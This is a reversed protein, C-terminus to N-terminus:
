RRRRAHARARRADASVDRDELSVVASGGRADGSTHVWVPDDAAFGPGSCRANGLVTRCTLDADVILEEYDFLPLLPWGSLELHGRAGDITLVGPESTPTATRDAITGTCHAEGHALSCTARTHAVAGPAGLACMTALVAAAPIFSRPVVCRRSGITVDRPDRAGHQEADPRDGVREAIELV